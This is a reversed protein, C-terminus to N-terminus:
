DSLMKGWLRLVAASIGGIILIIGLGMVYWGTFGFQYNQPVMGGVFFIIIGIVLVIIWTKM